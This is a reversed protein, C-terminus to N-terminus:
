AAMWWNCVGIGVKQRRGGARVGESVRESGSGVSRDWAVEWRRTEVVFIVELPWEATHCGRGVM